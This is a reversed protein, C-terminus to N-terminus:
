SFEQADVDGSALAVRRDSGAIKLFDTQAWVKGTAPTENVRDTADYTLTYEAPPTFTADFTVEIQNPDTVGSITGTARAPTTTDTEVTRVKDGVSYWTSINPEDTYPSLTLTLTWVDDAGSQSAVPFGPAYGGRESLLRLLTVSGRGEYPSWDYGIILCPVNDLGWEGDDDPLHNTSLTCVSGIQATDMHVLPVDPLTIVEYPGGFLGFLAATLLYADEISVEPRELDLLTTRSRPAIELTGALPDDAAANRTTIAGGQFKKEAFSFDTRIVARGVQGWPSKTSAPLGRGVDNPTFVVAAADTATPPRLQRITLQGLANPALYCGRLRLEHALIERLTTGEATAWYRRALRAAGEAEELETWDQDFDDSTILPMAGANVLGPSDAILADILGGLGTSVALYRMLHIRTDPGIKTLPSFSGFRVWRESPDVSVAQAYRIEDGEVGTEIGVLQLTSPVARGGLFLKDAVNQPRGPDVFDWAVGTREPDGLVGRPVPATVEISYTKGAAVTFTDTLSVTDRWLGYYTGRAMQDVPSLWGSTGDSMNRGGVFLYYPTTSGARYVLRWGNPGLSEAYIQEDDWSWGSIATAIAVNLAEVFAENSPFFGSLRVLGNDASLATMDFDAGTMRLLQFNIASTNPLYIGSAPVPEELDAGIPQDLIWSRPELAFSWRGEHYELDTRCVGRWRETGSGAASDAKGWLAISCRRGRLSRPRDTVMPYSLAEGDATYHAQAKTGWHGRTLGQFQVSTKSTYKICETNVHLVGSSPWGETSAVTAETDAVGLDATLWTRLTPKTSLSASIQHRRDDVIEVGMEQEQLEGRMLDASAALRITLPDLGELRQRGDALNGVLTRSDVYITPWGEITLAARFVGSGRAIQQAYTGM